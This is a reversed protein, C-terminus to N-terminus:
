PASFFDQGTGYNHFWRSTGTYYWLWANKGFDYLFPFTNPDTYLIEKLGQDYLYLQNGAGPFVYEWGLWYHYLWPSASSYFAYTYYGFFAHPLNLYYLQNGASVQGDFFGPYLKSLYKRWFDAFDIQSDSFQLMVDAGPIRNARANDITGTTAGTAGDITFQGTEALSVPNGLPDQVFSTGSLTGQIKHSADSITESATLSSVAYGEIAGCSAPVRTLSGVISFSTKTTLSRGGGQVTANELISVPSSNLVFSGSANVITSSLDAGLVTVTFDGSDPADALYNGSSCPSARWAVDVILRVLAVGSQSLSFAMRTPVEVLTAPNLAAHAHVTPSATGTSAGTWDFFVTLNAGGLPDAYILKLGNANPSCTGGQTFDCTARPLEDKTDGFQGTSELVSLQAVISTISNELHMSTATSAKVGRSLTVRRLVKSVVRDIKRSVARGAAANTLATSLGPIARLRQELLLLWPEESVWFADASLGLEQM